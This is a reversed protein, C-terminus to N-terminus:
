AVLFGNNFNIKLYVKNSKKINLRKVSNKM